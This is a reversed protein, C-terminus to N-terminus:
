IRLSLAVRVGPCHDHRAKFPINQSSHFRETLITGGRNAPLRTLKFGSCVYVFSSILYHLEWFLLRRKCKRRMSRFIIVCMRLSYVGSQEMWVVLPVIRPELWTKRCSFMLSFRFNYSRRFSLNKKFRFGKRTSNDKRM